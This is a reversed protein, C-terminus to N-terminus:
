SIAERVEREIRDRLEAIRERSLSSTHATVHYQGPKGKHHLVEHWYDFDAIIDYKEPHNSVDSGPYPTYPCLDFDDPKNNMLWQRTQEVTVETEGPMGIMM